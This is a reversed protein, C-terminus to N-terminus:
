QRSGKATRPSIDKRRANSVPEHKGNGKRQEANRQWTDMNTAILASPNETKSTTTPSGLTWQNDEVVMPLEPEHKTITTDKRPNM